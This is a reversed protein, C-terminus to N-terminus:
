LLAGQGAERRALEDDVRKELAKSDRLLSYSAGTSRNAFYEKQKRRMQAVLFIFEADTM